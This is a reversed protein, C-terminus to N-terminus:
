QNAWLEQRVAKVEDSIEQLSPRDPDDDSSDKNEFFQDLERETMRSSMEPVDNKLKQVTQSLLTQEEPQLSLIVQALSEILQTNTRTTM